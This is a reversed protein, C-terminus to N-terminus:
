VMGKRLEALPYFTGRWTVGGRGLTLFMSRLMTYAFLTTGVPHLVFYCPSVDSKWSMGVYMGLICTLAVAYPIRAWGHALFSGLFPVLNLFVLLVCSALARPWQFSLLAFLNKTLNQIVGFAGKAWRISILNAGFAVRQAYGANKVLKGLKMDDLVEFRLAEYTGIGDYASRRIMNFAGVGVHDKTKPDATKWPRHGFVFLTQFFALMMTEGMQKMILRPLVVLHDSSSSEAYALARRLSEPEFMVDADTFLLWDGTAANAATWMAHAKGLWGEPLQEIHIVKLRGQAASMAAARDMADGTRDTSRDNVAIVEYNGYDLQLLKTLTQAIHEEENRAPVIISVRLRTKPSRDWAALSLDVIKPVGLAADILHFLWVLGLIGGAIWHFYTM